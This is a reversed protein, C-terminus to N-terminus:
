SATHDHATSTAKVDNDEENVPPLRRIARCPEGDISIHGNEIMQQYVRSIIESTLKGPSDYTFLQTDRITELKTLTKENLRVSHTTYERGDPTEKVHM